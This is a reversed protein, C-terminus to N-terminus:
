LRKMLADRRKMLRAVHPDDFLGGKSHILGTYGRKDARAMAHLLLRELRDFQVRARAARQARATAAHGYRSRLRHRPM